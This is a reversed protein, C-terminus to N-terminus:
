RYLTDNPEDWVSPQNSLNAWKWIEFCAGPWFSCFHLFTCVINCKTVLCAFNHVNSYKQCYHSRLHVYHVYHVLTCITCLTSWFAILFSVPGYRPWWRPLEEESAAVPKGIERLAQLGSQLALRSTCPSSM